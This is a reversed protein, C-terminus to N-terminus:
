RPELRDGLSAGFGRAVGIYETIAKFNICLNIHTYVYVYKRIYIYMYIYIYRYYLHIFTCTHM